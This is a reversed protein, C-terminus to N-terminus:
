DPVRLTGVRNAAWQSDNTSTRSVMGAVLFYGLIPGTGFGLLPVPTIQLPALAFLTAYYVSVALTGSSRTRRAVLAFAIVPLAAAILAALLAFPSAEAALSFVGEVYRVPALPDPASWALAACGLLIAFLALRFPLHASSTALLVLIGLAFASMQSADPQLALAVAAATVSAAYLGFSRLPAGLSFLVLPLVM